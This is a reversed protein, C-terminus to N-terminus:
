IQFTVWYWWVLFGLRFSQVVAVMDIACLDNQIFCMVNLSGLILVLIFVVRLTSFLTLCQRVM